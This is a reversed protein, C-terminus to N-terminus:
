SKQFPNLLRAPVGILDSINRTVFTLGHVVATAAQLSDIVPLSRPANLEAWTEIVRHDIELTRGQYTRELRALWTALHGASQPDRRRIRLIGLRLEGFVLVSLALDDSEVTAFWERLGTDARAGKRLESVVNTDLLFKM